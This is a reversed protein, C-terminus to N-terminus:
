KKNPLKALDIKMPKKPYKRSIIDPLYKPLLIPFIVEKSNKIKELSFWDIKQVVNKEWDDLNTLSVNKQKTRAVIFTEKQRTMIGKLIFDFEGFWVIPGQEIEEKLLGTEEFIERIAADEISEGKEIKGGIPFWFRGHNKKDLSTTNPDEVCMLLMEDNDNLLIIKVSNRINSSM